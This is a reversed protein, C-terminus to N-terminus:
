GLGAALVNGVGERKGGLLARTREVSHFFSARHGPLHDRGAASPDQDDYFFFHIGSGLRSDLDLGAILWNWFPKNVNYLAFWLLTAAGRTGLPPRQPAHDARHDHEDSSWWNAHCPPPSSAAHLRDLAGDTLAYDIWRGRRTGEILGARAAGEPPLEVSQGFRRSRNCIVSVAAQGVLVHLLQLRIPDAVAALLSAGSIVQAEPTRSDVM